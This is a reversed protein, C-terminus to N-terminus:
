HDILVDQAPRSSQDVVELAALVTEGLLLHDELSTVDVLYVGDPFARRVQAAVRLGLRTKGVGGPGTLTVLRHAELLRKAEGLEHRRGVFRTLEAPLNTREAVAM